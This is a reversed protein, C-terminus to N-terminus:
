LVKWRVLAAAIAPLLFIILFIPLEESFAYGARSVGVWLNVAAAIFWLVLFAITATTYSSGTGSTLRAAGLCAGWVVFGCLIFIATRM